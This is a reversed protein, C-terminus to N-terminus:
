FFRTLENMTKVIEEAEDMNNYISSSFRLSPKLSHKHFYAHSCHVGSRVMINKTKDLLISLEGSDFNDVRVNIISGRKSADKPGLLKVNQIKLFEETLFSNIESEHSRIDNMKYKSLYSLAAASGLAGAYNQLGSEFREPIDALSCTGYDTDFVTEGGTMLPELKLLLEEKGYLCGMGTPGFAKHFSFAMFDVNLESVNVECHSIAQAADLIFIAGYKHSLEVMEKIPLSTGMVHSTHFTSVVKVKGTKLIDEFEKLNPNGTEPDISFTRHDIENRQTLFQWPLLNSNHEFDSTLVIDGKKLKLSHALFNLGETTNKTFIVQKDKKSGIFKSTISRADKFKDSTLKGFKHVARNHCSPHSSYYETISNIVMQPKLTMCANDFYIPYKGKIKNELCPFDKRIKSINLAMYVLSGLVSCDFIGVM